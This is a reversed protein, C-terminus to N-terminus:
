LERLKRATIAWGVAGVIAATVWFDSSGAGTFIGGMSVATISIRRLTRLRLFTEKKDKSFGKERLVAALLVDKRSKKGVVAWGTIGTVLVGAWFDDSLFKGTSGNMLFLSLVTFIIFVCKWIRYYGSLRRVSEADEPTIMPEKKESSKPAEPATREPTERDDEVTVISGCYECRLERVGEKWPLSAGCAPCEMTKTRIM